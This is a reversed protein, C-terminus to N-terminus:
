RGSTKRAPPAPVMVAVPLTVERLARRDVRGPPAGLGVGGLVQQGALTQRQLVIRRRRPHLLQQRAGAPPRRPPLRRGGSQRNSLAVASLNAASHGGDGESNRRQGSLGRWGVLGRDAPTLDFDRAAAFKGQDAFNRMEDRTFWQADDLEDRNIDIAATKAEAHFGLMALM